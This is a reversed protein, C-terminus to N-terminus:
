LHLTFLRLRELAGGASGHDGGARHYARSSHLHPAHEIKGSRRSIVLEKKEDGKISLNM